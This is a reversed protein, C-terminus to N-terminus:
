GLALWHKSRWVIIFTLQISELSSYIIDDLFFFKSQNDDSYPYFQLFFYFIDIIYITSQRIEINQIDFCTKFISFIALMILNKSDLKFYLTHLHDVRRLYWFTNPKTTLFRKYSHKRFSTWSDKEIFTKWDMNHIKSWFSVIFTHLDFGLYM